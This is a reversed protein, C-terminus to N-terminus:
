TLANNFKRSTEELSGSLLAKITVSKWKKITAKLCCNRERVRKGERGGDRM